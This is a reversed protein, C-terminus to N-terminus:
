SAALIAQARDACDKLERALQTVGAPDLASSVCIAGVAYKLRGGADLLPAAVFTVGAIYNGRDISMGKQGAVEVEKRWAALTPPKDWRLARFRKEVEKWSQDTYAAALRGTAGGLAPIRSGVDVQLRFPASSKALALVTMHELGHLEVGLVTVHWKAALDDIMPQVVNPFGLRELVSRALPLMGVGMTYRKTEPDVRVLEEGVLVRLIHLCTSPVLALERAIAKVGLPEASRGLLRLIAIARTVAPVARVRKPVRAPAADPASLTTRRTTTTRTM